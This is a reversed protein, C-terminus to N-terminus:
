EEDKEEDESSSLGEPTQLDPLDLEEKEGDSIEVAMLEEDEDESNGVCCDEEENEKEKEEEKEEEEEEEESDENVEQLNNQIRCKEQIKQIALKRKNEIRLKQLRTTDVTNDIITKLFSGIKHSEDLAEGLSDSSGEGQGYKVVVSVVSNFLPEGMGTKCYMVVQNVKDDIPVTMNKGDGMPITLMTTNKGDLTTKSLTSDLARNIHKSNDVQRSKYWVYFVYCWFMVMLSLFIYERNVYILLEM